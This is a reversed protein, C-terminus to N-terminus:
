AFITYFSIVICMTCQSKRYSQNHWFPMIRENRGETLTDRSSRFFFAHTKKTIADDIELDLYDSVYHCKTYNWKLQNCINTELSSQPRVGTKTVGNGIAAARKTRLRTTIAAMKLPSFSRNGIVMVHTSQKLLWKIFKLSSCLLIIVMELWTLGLWALAFWSSSKM